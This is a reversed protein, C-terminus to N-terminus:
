FGHDSDYRRGNEPFVYTGPPGGTQPNTSPSWKLVTFDDVLPRGHAGLAMRMHNKATTRGESSAYRYPKVRDIAALFSQPNLNRGAGTIGAVLPLLGAYVFPAPGPPEGYADRPYKKYWETQRSKTGHQLDIMFDQAYCTLGSAREWQTSTYLRVMAPADQGSCPWVVYDPEFGVAEAAPTFMIPAGADPIIMTNVGAARFATAIGTAQQQAESLNASISRVIKISLGQAKLRKVMEPASDVLGPYEAYLVGFVRKKGQTTPTKAVRSPLFREMVSVQDDWTAGGPMCWGKTRGPLDFDLDYTWLNFIKAQALLPCAYASISGHAALAAFPKATKIDSVAAVNAEPSSGAEIIVPKLKRGHLDFKFGMIEGSGSNANIYDVYARFAQAEDLLGEQGTGTLLSGARTRDGKWYYAVTIEKATVGVAKGTFASPPAISPAPDDPDVAPVRVTGRSTTASSGGESASADDPASAKPADTREAATRSREPQEQSCAGALILVAVLAAVRRPTSM